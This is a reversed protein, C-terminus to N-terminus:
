QPVVQIAKSSSWIQAQELNIEAIGEILNVSVV